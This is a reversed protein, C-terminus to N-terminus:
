AVVRDAVAAVEDAITENLTDAATSLASASLALGLFVTLAQM